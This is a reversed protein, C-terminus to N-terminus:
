VKRRTDATKGESYEYLLWPANNLHLIGAWTFEPLPPRPVAFPYSIGKLWLVSATGKKEIREIRYYKLRSFKTKSYIFPMGNTDIYTSKTQKLVGIPTEICKTLTYLEKFPTQIRRAGLTKGSMNKDDLLQNDLYLLGDGRSWNSSGIPFVPFLVKHLSSYTVVM